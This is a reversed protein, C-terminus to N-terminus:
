LAAVIVGRPFRQVEALPTGPDEDNAFLTGRLLQGSAILCLLPKGLCSVWARMTRVDRESPAAGGGPHTHYFGLVDGRREERELVAAWDVEVAAPGGTARRWLRGHWLRGRRQGLVVYGIENM